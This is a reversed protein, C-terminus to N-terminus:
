SVQSEVLQVSRVDIMDSQNKDLSLSTIPAVMSNGEKDLCFIVTFAFINAHLLHSLSLSLSLSDVQSELDIDTDTLDVVVQSSDLCFSDISGLSSRQSLVSPCDEGTTVKM